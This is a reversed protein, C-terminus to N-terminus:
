EEDAESQRQAEKTFAEKIEEPTYGYDALAEKVPEIDWTYFCEHNNLERLIIATKGNEAKDAAIGADRSAKLDKFLQKATDVPCILGGGCDGYKVGPRAVARYQETSFAFFAGAKELAVHHSEKTYDTLYKM